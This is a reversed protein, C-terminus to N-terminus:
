SPSRTRPPRGARTRARPAARRGSGRRGSGHGPVGGGRHRFQEHQSGHPQGPPLRRRGDRERWRQGRDGAGRQAHGGRDDGGAPHRDAGGGELVAGPSRRRSARARCRSPRRRAARSQGGVAAMAHVVRRAPGGAGRGCTGRPRPRPGPPGAPARWRRRWSRARAPARGAATGTRGAITPATAPTSPTSAASVNEAPIELATACGPATRGSRAAPRGEVALVALRSRGPSRPTWRRPPLGSVDGPEKVHADGAGLGSEDRDLGEGVGRHVALPNGITSVAPRMGALGASIASAGVVALSRCAPTPEVIRSAPPAAGRVM